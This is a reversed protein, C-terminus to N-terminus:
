LDYSFMVNPKNSGKVKTSPFSMTVAWNNERLQAIPM